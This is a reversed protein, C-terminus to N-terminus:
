SNKEDDETVVDGNMVHVLELVMATLPTDLLEAGTTIEVGNLKLGEIKPFTREFTDNVGGEDSAVRNNQERVSVRHVEVMIPTDAEHAEDPQWRVKYQFDTSLLVDM